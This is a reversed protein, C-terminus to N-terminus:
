KELKLLEFKISLKYYKKVKKNSTQLYELYFFTVKLLDYAINKYLQIKNTIM